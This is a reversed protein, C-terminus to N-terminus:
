EYSVYAVVLGHKQIKNWSQNWWRLILIYLILIHVLMTAHVIRVFLIGRVSVNYIYMWHNNCTTARSDCADFKKEKDDVYAEAISYLFFWYESLDIWNRVVMATRLWRMAYNRSYM